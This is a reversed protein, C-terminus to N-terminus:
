SPALGCSDGVVSDFNAGFKGHNAKHRYPYIYM